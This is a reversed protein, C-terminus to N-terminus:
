CDVDSCLAILVAFLYRRPFMYICVKDNANMKLIRCVWSLSIARFRYLILNGSFTLMLVFIYYCTVAMSGMEDIFM